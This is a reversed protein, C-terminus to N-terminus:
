LTDRSFYSACQPSNQEIVSQSHQSGGIQNYIEDLQRIGTELSFRSTAAERCRRSIGPQRTLGILENLANTLSQNSFDSVSVGTGTERLDAAVDGVGANALCPKGCALFEGMRTPCSARKAFTPKIFFIGADMKGIEAGVDIYRSSRIEVRSLDVRHRRLTDQIFPHRNRNLITFRANANMAFLTRVANAVEGFLYWSGVSGVYGLVFSAREQRTRSRPTFLDLDTCTPIVSISSPNREVGYFRQLEHKGSRTLSIIHDAEKLLWIELQKMFRYIWSSKTWSGADVREDPWFGRMDFVYRTECCRKLVLAITGAIYGRAHILDAHHLSGSRLTQIVGTAIDFATAILRPKKHYTLYHWEVGASACSQKLDKLAAKDKLDSPKEFTLLTISHHEALKTVYNLVQSQGLPQRLGTYSIYLINAM